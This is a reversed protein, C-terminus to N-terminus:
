VANLFLSDEVVPSCCQVQALGKTGAVSGSM